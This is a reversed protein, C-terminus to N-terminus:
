EGQTSVERIEKSESKESDLRINGLFYGEKEALEVTEKIIKTVKETDIDLKEEFSKKIANCEISTMMSIPYAKCIVSRDEYIKCKCTKRDLFACKHDPTQVYIYGKPAPLEMNEAVTMFQCKKIAGKFVKLLESHKELLALPIPVLDTCCNARCRYCKIKDFKDKNKSYIFELVKTYAGSLIIKLMEEAKQNEM